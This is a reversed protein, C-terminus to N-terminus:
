DQVAIELLQQKEGFIMALRPATEDHFGRLIDYTTLAYKLDDVDKDRSKDKLFRVYYGNEKIFKHRGFEYIEKELQKLFKLGSSFIEAAEKKTLRDRPQLAPNRDLMARAIALHDNLTSYIAYFQARRVLLKGGFAQLERVLLEVESLKHRAVEKLTLTIKEMEKGAAILLDYHKKLDTMCNDLMSSSGAKAMIANLRSVSAGTQSIISDRLKMRADIFKEVEKQKEEGARLASIKDMSEAYANVLAKQDSVIRAVLLQKSAMLKKTAVDDVAGSGSGAGECATMEVLGDLTKELRRAEKGMQPDPGALARLDRM